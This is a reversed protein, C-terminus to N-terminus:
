KALLVTGVTGLQNVMLVAADHYTSCILDAPQGGLSVAAAKVGVPFGPPQMINPQQLQRDLLQDTPQGLAAQPQRMHTALATTSIRCM